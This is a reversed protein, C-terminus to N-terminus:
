SFPLAVSESANDIGVGSQMGLKLPDYQGSVDQSTQSAETPSSRGEEWAGAAGGGSQGVSDEEVCGGRSWIGV